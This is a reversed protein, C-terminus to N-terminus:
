EVVEDALLPAPAPNGNSAALTPDSLDSKRQSGRYLPLEFHFISGGIDAKGGFASM